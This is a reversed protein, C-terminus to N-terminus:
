RHTLAVCAKHGQVQMRGINHYAREIRLFVHDVPLPLRREVVLAVAGRAVADAAFDHGDRTFGPVCFFLNGPSVRRNDYALATVVTQPGTGLLERVTMAPLRLARDAGVGDRSRM